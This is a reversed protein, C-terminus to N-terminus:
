CRPVPAVLSQGALFLGRDRWPPTVRRSAVQNQVRGVSDMAICGSSSPRAYTPAPRAVALSAGTSGGARGPAGGGSGGRRAVGGGFRRLKTDAWQCPSRG